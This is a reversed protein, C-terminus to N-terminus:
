KVPPLQERLTKARAIVDANLEDLSKNSALAPELTFKWPVVTEIRAPVATAALDFPPIEYLPASARPKVRLPEFGEKEVRVDYTGYYTFGAEVPTRGVEVDNITVTAGPPESTISVRRELCGSLCACSVCLIACRASIM